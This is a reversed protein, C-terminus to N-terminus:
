PRQELVKLALKLLTDKDIAEKKDQATRILVANHDPIVAIFQGHHGSAMLINEPASPYPRPLGKSPLDQNLWWHLGYGERNDIGELETKLFAPAMEGTMKIWEPSLITEGEWQGKDVYLKGFRAADRPTMYLYSSCVFNGSGDREWTASTIGLPSFLKDWPYNQYIEDDGLARRLVHCLLNSEGSSYNFREQPKVKMSVKATYAGMDPQGGLYLMRVVNSKLPNGEYGENWDLGSSMQLLDKVTILTAGERQLLPEYQSAKTELSLKGESVALGVLASAFSKSVSWLLHPTTKSFGGSYNEVLIQDGKILVLGNTQYPAKVAFAYDLLRQADKSVNSSPEQWEFAFATSSLFFLLAIVSTKM